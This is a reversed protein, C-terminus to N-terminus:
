RTREGYYRERDGLQRKIRRSKTLVQDLQDQTLNVVVNEYPGRIQIQAGEKNARKEVM